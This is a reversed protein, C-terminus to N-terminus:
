CCNNAMFNQPWIAVWSLQPVPFYFSRILEEMYGSCVVFAVLEQTSGSRATNNMTGTRFSTGDM